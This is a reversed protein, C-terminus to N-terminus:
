GRKKQLHARLARAQVRNKRIEETRARPDSAMELRDGEKQLNKYSALRDASLAGEAVAKQVACGPEKEHRCDSFRCHAALAAVDDFAEDLGSGTDWLGIERMGPTDIVIGGTPLVVLERRVTTHRGKDDDDRVPSTALRDEGLLRNILTSKGVGSSGLLVGTTNDRLYGHVIEIGEGTLSSSAHIPVGRAIAAAAEIAPGPDVLDAKSLLIVPEAGSERALALYRELRRPSFDRNLSSVLFVHDVNAAVVQPKKDLGAARRVFATRRPLIAQIVARGETDPTEDLVVWDGVAPMDLASEAEHRLRGTIVAWRESTGDHVRYAGRHETVIRAPRRASAHEAAHAAFHGAFPPTFGLRVLDPNM